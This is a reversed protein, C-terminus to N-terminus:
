SLAAIGPRAARARVARIASALRRVGEDMEDPELRAYSIRMAGNGGPEAEMAGGPLFTVGQRIAENLLAREDIPRRFMLWLHHGGVPTRVRVEDDLRARVSAILADRRERYIPNTQEVLREHAGSALWRHAVHQVLSSTHVDNHLKLWSLRQRVPGSAAAWGLRLGGGITKSLSDVYIVHDPMEHRLRRRQEGEMRVTAYVGDELIFFSRERALELLRAARRPSLDQGTPNQCGSQVAVLKVEHRALIRELADVDLGEEDVPVGIVRAGSMQLSSLIGIFTPTESVVVDGPAVVARCVLDIAQRAGSTVLIEDATQAFGLQRGRVAIEERLEHLGDPDLYSLAEGGIENLLDDAIRGLQTSPFISPHPAGTALSVIGPDSPIMYTSLFMENSFSARMEPLVATQWDVPDRDADPAPPPVSRVFTGRGVASTVYGLEALRRYVRVATLHNISAEEALARTTPLKEGPALEGADIAERLRDVLQGTISTSSGRDLDNLKLKHSM